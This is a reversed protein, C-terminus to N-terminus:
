RPSKAVKILKEILEKKSSNMLVEVLKKNM